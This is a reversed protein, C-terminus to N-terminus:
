LTYPLLAGHCIDQIYCCRSAAAYTIFLTAAAHRCRRCRRFSFMQVAYHRRPARRSLAAAYDAFLPPTAATSFPQQRLPPPSFERRAHFAILLREFIFADRLKRQRAAQRACVEM